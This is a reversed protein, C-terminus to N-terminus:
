AQGLLGAEQDNIGTLGTAPEQRNEAALMAANSPEGFVLVKKKFVPKGFTSRPATQTSSFVETL